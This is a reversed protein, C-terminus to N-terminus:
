MADRSPTSTSRRMRASPAVSVAVAVAVAPVMAGVAVGDCRRASRGLSSRYCRSPPSIPTQCRDGPICGRIPTEIVSLPRAELAAVAGRHERAQLRSGSDPPAPLEQLHMVHVRGSSEAVASPPADPRDRSLEADPPVRHPRHSSTEVVIAGGPRFGSLPAHVLAVPGDYPRQEVAVAWLLHPRLGLWAGRRHSSHQDGHAAAGAALHRDPPRRSGHALRDARWQGTAVLDHAQRCRRFAPRRYTRKWSRRCTPAVTMRFWTPLRSSSFADRSRGTIRDGRVRVPAHQRLPARGHGLPHVPGQGAHPGVSRRSADSSADSPELLTSRTRWWQPSPPM